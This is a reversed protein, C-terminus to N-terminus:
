KYLNNEKIYKFVDKHLLSQIKNSDHINDRIYSSSIDVSIDEILQCSYKKMSDDIGPRTIVQLNVKDLIYEYEKWREINSYQDFGIIMNIDCDSYKSELYKIINISFISKNKFEYDIISVKKSSLSNLMLKIMKCRHLYDVQPKNTKLPSYYSPSIFLRDAKDAFYKIIEHHGLHPPDFAGGFLYLNM